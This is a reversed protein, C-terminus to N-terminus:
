TIVERTGAGQPTERRLTLAFNAFNESIAISYASFCLATLQNFNFFNFIGSVAASTTLPM